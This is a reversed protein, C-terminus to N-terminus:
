SILSKQNRVRDQGNAKHTDYRLNTLQNNTKIDDYHCVVQGKGPLGVFTQMVLNHIRYKSRGSNADFLDVQIYGVQDPRGNLYRYEKLEARKYNLDKRPQGYRQKKTRIRGLTSIEYRDPIFERGDRTVLKPIEKWIENMSLNYLIKINQDVM